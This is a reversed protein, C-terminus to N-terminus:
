NTERVYHEINVITGQTTYFYEFEIAKRRWSDFELFVDEKPEDFGLMDCLESLYIGPPNNQYAKLNAMYEIESLRARTDSMAFEKFDDIKEGDFVITM